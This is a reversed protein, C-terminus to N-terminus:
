CGATPPLKFSRRRPEGSGAPIVEKENFLFVNESVNDEVSSQILSFFPEINTHGSNLQLEDDEFMAISRTDRLPESVM